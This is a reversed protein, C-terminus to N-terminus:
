NKKTMTATAFLISNNGSRIVKPMSNTGDTKMLYFGMGTVDYADSYATTPAIVTGDSIRVLTAIYKDNYYAYGNNTTSGALVVAFEEAPSGTFNSNRIPYNRLKLAGSAADFDALFSYDATYNEGWGKVVFTRDPIAAAINLTYTTATGSSNQGSITWNGLWASYQTSATTFKPIEVVKYDGTANFYGDNTVGIMVAVYDDTTGIPFSGEARSYTQVGYSSSTPHTFAQFCALANNNYKKEFDTKTVLYMVYRDSGNAVTKILHNTGNKGEYHVNWDTRENMSMVLPKAKVLYGRQIEIGGAPKFVKRSGGIEVYQKANADYSYMVFRLEPYTGTPVPFYFTMDGGTPTPTFYISLSGFGTTLEEAQISAMGLNAYNVSFEGTIRRLSTWLTIRRAEPPINSCTIKVVGGVHKFSLASANGETVAALMPAQTDNAVYEYYSPLSLAAVKNETYVTDYIAAPSVALESVTIGTERTKFVASGTGAGSELYFEAPTTATTHVKIKDTALWSFDGANEASKTADDYYAKLSLGDQQGILKAEEKQCASFSVALALLASLTFIKKMTM